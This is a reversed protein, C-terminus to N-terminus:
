MLVVLSKNKNGKVHFNSYNKLSQDSDAVGHCQKSANKFMKRFMQLRTGQQRGGRLRYPDTADTIRTQVPRVM